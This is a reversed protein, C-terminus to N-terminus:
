DGEEASHNLNDASIPVHPVDDVVLTQRRSVKEAQCCGWDRASDWRLITGADRLQLLRIKNNDIPSPRAQLSVGAQRM